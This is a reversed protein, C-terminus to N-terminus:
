DEVFNKKPKIENDSIKSISVLINNKTLLIYESDFDLGAPLPISIGNRIRKFELDTLEYRPLSIADLPNIEKFQSSNLDDSDVLQFSGINLRLLDQLYAGCGLKLGIDNALSRIYTGKKCFVDSIATYEDSNFDILNIDYIEVERPKIEPMVSKKDRALDCLKKGNVKIASFKPPIQMTKGIFCSLASLLEEKNFNPCAYFEEPSESDMTQTVFGFKIYARYTKDSPLFDLLRTAKGVAVQMVGHAKPDLTGSHGIQKINLTKRLKAIVDFSTIGSPKNINLFYM